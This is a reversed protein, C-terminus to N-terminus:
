LAEKIKQAVRAEEGKKYSTHVEWLKFGDNYFRPIVHFHIHMVAQGAAKDNNVIINVGDAKLSKKVAGAVKKVGLAVKQLSDDGVEYINTAHIKPIVLAHGQNNPNTSLFALVDGDEYIEGHRPVEKKVIKCFICNEM